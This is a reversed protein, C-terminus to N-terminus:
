RRTSVSGKSVLVCVSRFVTFRLGPVVVVNYVICAEHWRGAWRAAGGGGGGGRPVVPTFNGLGVM